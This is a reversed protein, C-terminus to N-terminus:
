IKSLNEARYGANRVIEEIIESSLHDTEVTLIKQPHATDVKWHKIANNADLYPTLKEICGGCQINTRFVYTSM